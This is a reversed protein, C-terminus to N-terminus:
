EPHMYVSSDTLRGNDWTMHGSNNLRVHFPKVPNVHKSQKTNPHDPGLKDNFIKLARQFFPEAKKFDGQSEYLAAMWWVTIGVDPHNPGLVKERIKLARNILPETKTYKEQAHYLGALNNLSQAVDPHEPGLVKERIALSQFEDDQFDCNRRIGALLWGDEAPM